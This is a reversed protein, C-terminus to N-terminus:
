LDQVLVFNLIREAISRYSATHNPSCSFVNSVIANGEYEPLGLIFSGQFCSCGSAGHCTVECGWGSACRNIIKVLYQFQVNETDSKASYM